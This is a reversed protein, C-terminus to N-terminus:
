EVLRSNLEGAKNEDFWAVNQRLISRYFRKRIRHTQRTAALSFTSVQIFGLIFGAVGLGVFGIVLIDVMSTFDADSLCQFNIITSVSSSSGTILATIVTCNLESDPVVNRVSSNVLSAAVDGTINRFAFVNVLEGLILMSAPLVFGHLAAAVFGVIMLFWDFCTAFSFQLPSCLSSHVSPWCSVISCSQAGINSYAYEIYTLASTNCPLLSTHMANSHFPGNLWILYLM